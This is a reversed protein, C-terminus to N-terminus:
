LDELEKRLAELKRERIDVLAQLDEDTLAISFNGKRTKKWVGQVYMKVQTVEKVLLRVVKGEKNTIPSTYKRPLEHIEAELQKINEALENARNLKEETM